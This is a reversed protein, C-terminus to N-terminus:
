RGQKYDYDDDCPMKGFLEIIEVRKHKAIFEKLAANVTEKPTNFGGIKLAQDLLKSDLALNTTM